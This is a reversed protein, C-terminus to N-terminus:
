ATEKTTLAAHSRRVRASPPQAFRAARNGVKIWSDAHCMPCGDTPPESVVVGYGCRRCRLDHRLAVGRVANLSRNGHDLPRVIRHAM